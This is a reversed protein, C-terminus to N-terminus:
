VQYIGQLSYFRTEIALCYRLQSKLLLICNRIVSLWPKKLDLIILNVGIKAM